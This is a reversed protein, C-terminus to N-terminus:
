AGGVASLSTVQYCRNSQMAIERLKIETVVMARRKATLISLACLVRQGANTTLSQRILPRVFHLGLGGVIFLFGDQCFAQNAWTHFSPHSCM